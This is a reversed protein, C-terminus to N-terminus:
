NVLARSRRVAELLKPVTQESLTDRAVLFLFLHKYHPVAILANEPFHFICYKEGADKQVSLANALSVFLAASERVLELLPAELFEFDSALLEGAEGLIATGRCSSAGALHKLLHNHKESSAPSPNGRAGVSILREDRRRAAEILLYEWQANISEESSSADKRFEFSGKKFSLLHHFAEEGKKSGAQAHIIQGKRMFIHGILGDLALQLEGNMSALCCMHLVDPLKATSLDGSIIRVSEQEERRRSSEMLLHEWHLYISDEPSDVDSHFEFSDHELSLLLYFAEEGKKKGARAHIIEGERLYIHGTLGDHYSQLDGDVGALCYMQLMEMLDNGSTTQHINELDPQTHEPRAGEVLLYEWDAEITSKPSGVGKKFSFSGEKLSLLSYFADEGQKNGAQAHVVQGKRVFIHGAFNAHVLQLDGDMCALCCMQVVDALKVSSLNGSLSM